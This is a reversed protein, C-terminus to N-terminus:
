DGQPYVDHVLLLAKGKDFQHDNNRDDGDQGSDRQRLILVINRTGASSCSGGLQRTVTGGDRAADRLLLVQSVTVGANIANRGDGRSSEREGLVDGREAADGVAHDPGGGAARGSTAGAQGIHEGRGHLFAGDGPRVAARGAVWRAAELRALAAARLESLPM